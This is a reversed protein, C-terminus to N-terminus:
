RPGFVHVTVLDLGGELTGTHLRSRGTAHAAFRADADTSFQALVLFADDAVATGLDDPLHPLLQYRRRSAHMEVFFASDALVTADAPVFRDLLEAFPTAVSSTLLAERARMAKWFGSFGLAILLLALWAVCFRAPGAPREASGLVAGAALLAFPAFLIMYYQYGSSLLVTIAGACAWLCPIWTPAPESAALPGRLGRLLRPLALLACAAFAWLIPWCTPHWNGLLRAMLRTALSDDHLRSHFLLQEISESVTPWWAMAVLAAAAAMGGALLALSRLANRLTQGRFCALGAAAAFPLATPNFGMAIGISLGAAFGWAPSRHKQQRVLALMGLVLFLLALPDPRGFIMERSWRDAAFGSTVLATALLLRRRAAWVVLLATALLGALASLIRCSWHSVGLTPLAARQLAPFLPGHFNTLRDGHPAETHFVWRVHDSPELAQVAPVNFAAEDLSFPPYTDLSILFPAMAVVLIAVALLGTATPRERLWDVRRRLAGRRQRHPRPASPAPRPRGDFRRGAPPRLPGLAVVDWEEPIEGIETQKFRMHRRPLGRTLLDQMMSKKVVQLQDIVAESKEIVADISSLIAAIKKQEPLPPTPVETKRLTGINLSARTTGVVPWDKNRSKQLLVYSLFVQDIRDDPEIVAITRSINAQGYGTPFLAVCGVTGQVSILVEGGRLRSRAFENDLESSIRYIDSDDFRNNSIDTVRILPIGEELRPGPKLVGYCIPRTSSTIDALTLSPWEEHTM